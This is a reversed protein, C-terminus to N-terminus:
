VRPSNCPLRRRAPNKTLPFGRRHRSKATQQARPTVEPVPRVHDNEGISWRVGTYERQFTCTGVSSLKGDRSGDGQGVTAGSAPPKSAARRSVATAKARSCSVGHLRSRAETM